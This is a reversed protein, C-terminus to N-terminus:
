FHRNGKFVYKWNDIKTNNDIKISKQYEISIPYEGIPKKPPTSLGIIPKEEKETKTFYQYNSLIDAAIYVLYKKIRNNLGVLNNSNFIFDKPPNLRLQHPNVDKHIKAKADKYLCLIQSKFEKEKKSLKAYESYVCFSASVPYVTNYDKQFDYANGVFDEILNLLTTKGTGSQGIFCVKDLPQGAKAHGEPYTLDLVFNKFQQYETIDIKTIKMKKPLKQENNQWL